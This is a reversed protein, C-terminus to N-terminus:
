KATTVNPKPFSSRLYSQPSAESIAALFLAQAAVTRAIASLPSVENGYDEFSGAQRKKNM